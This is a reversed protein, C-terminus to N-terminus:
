RKKRKEQGGKRMTEQQIVEGKGAKRPEKDIKGRM